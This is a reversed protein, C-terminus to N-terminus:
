HLTDNGEILSIFEQEPEEEEYHQEEPPATKGLLQELADIYENVDDELMERMNMKAVLDLYSSVIKSKLPKVFLTHKLEFTFEPEETYTYWPSASMQEVMNGRANIGTRNTVIFPNMVTISYDNQNVVEGILDEGTILKIAVYYDM